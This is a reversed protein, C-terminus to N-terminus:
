EGGYVIKGIRSHVEKVLSKYELNGQELEISLHAGLSFLGKMAEYNNNVKGSALKKLTKHVPKGKLKRLLVELLKNDTPLSNLLEEVKAYSGVQYSDIADRVRKEYKSGKFDQEAKSLRELLTSASEM